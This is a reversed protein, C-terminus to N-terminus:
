RLKWTFKFMYWMPQPKGDITGPIFRYSSRIGDLAAQDLRDFGSSQVLKSELVHGDVDILAQLVLSGQEGLRRSQPPYEPEHSRQPDLRPLVRVPEPAAPKVTTIVTPATSQVPPPPPREITVEPPPIFPPPPPVFKPPPPPLEVKEPAAQDIIKTEIPAHVVEISRHALANVLAYIIAVHLVVVLGIGVFRSGSPRYSSYPVGEDLMAAVSAVTPDQM